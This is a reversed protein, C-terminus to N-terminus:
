WSGKRIETTAFIFSTRAAAAGRADQLLRTSRRVWQGKTCRTSSKYVMYRAQVPAYRVADKIHLIDDVSNHSAADMELVDVHRSEM